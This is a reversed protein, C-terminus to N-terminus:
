LIIQKGFFTLCERLRNRLVEDYFQTPIFVLIINKRVRGM